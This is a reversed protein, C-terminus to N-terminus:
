KIDHNGNEKYKPQIKSKIILVQNSKDFKFSEAKEGLLCTNGNGNNKVAKFRQESFFKM